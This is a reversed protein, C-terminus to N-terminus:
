VEHPMTKHMSVSFLNYVRLCPPCPSEHRLPVFNRRQPRRAIEKGTCLVCLFPTGGHREGHEGHRQASLKNKMKMCLVMRHATYLEPCGNPAPREDRVPLRCGNPIPREDRVPLRCGNPIPREDRVPPRCGNPVPKGDRAPPQCGNPVPKRLIVHEYNM